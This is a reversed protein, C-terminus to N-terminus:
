GRKPRGLGTKAFSEALFWKIGGEQYRSVMSIHDIEENGWRQHRLSQGAKVAILLLKKKKKAMSCPM